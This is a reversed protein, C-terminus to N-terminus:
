ITYLLPILYLVPDSQDAFKMMIHLFSLFRNDMSRPIQFKELKYRHEQCMWFM